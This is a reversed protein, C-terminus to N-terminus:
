TNGQYALRWDGYFVEYRAFFKFYHRGGDPAKPDFWADQLTPQKRMAVILPKIVADSVILYWATSDLEPSVIPPKMMDRYPNRERNASDYAWENAVIQFMERYLAPPVVPQNYNYQTYEGQDDRLAQAAVWITEFNDISLALAGENSQATQYHAGDDVHDNDFFDSGDYCSGYTSGDGGNLVQFVRKNLHRQFNQGAMKCRRLLDGTRDDDVANQSIWVTIDWNTPKVEMTKEIMDQITIGSKSEKPMPAAGLDVLDVAAGDLNVVMAVKQWDAPYKKLATLFGTRAGAVLHKPVNGSIM